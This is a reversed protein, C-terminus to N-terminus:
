DKTDMLERLEKILLRLAGNMRNPHWMLMVRARYLDDIPVPFMRLHPRSSFECHDAIMIAGELMEVALIATTINPLLRINERPLGLSDMREDAKEPSCAPFFVKLDKLDRYDAAEAAGPYDRHICLQMEGEELLLKKVNRDTDATNDITVVADLSNDRFADLIVGDPFTTTLITIQPYHQRFKRIFPNWLKEAALMELHGLKITNNMTGSLDSVEANAQSIRDMAQQFADRYIEGERTLKAGYRERVFLQCNLEQELKAIQKSLAQQTFYRRQAAETFSETEALILFSQIMSENWM